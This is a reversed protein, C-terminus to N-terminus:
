RLRTRFVRYGTLRIKRKISAMERSRSTCIILTFKNLLLQVYFYSNKTHISEKLLVNSQFEMRLIQDFKLHIYPSKKEKPIIDNM